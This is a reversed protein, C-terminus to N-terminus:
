PTVTPDGADPDPPTRTPAADVATDQLRDYSFKVDAATFPEGDHWKVGKRLHFTYTFQDASIEYSEALCPKLRLTFNDMQLMGETIMASIMKGNTDEGILPNLSDTDGNIREIVWDGQVPPGPNELAPADTAVPEGSRSCGTLLLALAFALHVPFRAIL